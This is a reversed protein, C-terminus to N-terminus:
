HHHHHHELNQNESLHEEMMKRYHEPGPVKLDTQKGKEDWARIKLCDKFDEREEFLRREGEDMPGGQYELTKRSADSLNKLYSAKSSVLYRKAAVHGEILCAVRESFGLGRLYDAGVKEHQWVGYGGMDEFSTDNCYHGLDHLLAALVMENDAGSRQAFYACQLSHELQNIAEGIYDLDRSKELLSILVSVKSSNSLSM